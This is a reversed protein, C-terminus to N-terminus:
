ENNVEFHYRSDFPVGMKVLKHAWEKAWPMVGAVLVRFGKAKADAQGKAVLAKLARVKTFKTASPELIMHAQLQVQGAIFGVTEGELEAVLVCHVDHDRPDPFPGENRKEVMRVLAERDREEYPRVTLGM